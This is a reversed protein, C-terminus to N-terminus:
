KKLMTMKIHCKPAGFVASEQIVLDAGLNRFLVRDMDMAADCVGQQDPRHYGYPCHHVYIEFSDETISDEIIEIPFKMLDIAQRLYAIVEDITDCREAKLMPNRFNLHGLGRNIGKVLPEGIIPIKFLLEYFRGTSAMMKEPDFLM